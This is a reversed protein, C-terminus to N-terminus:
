IGLIKREIAEMQQGQPCSSGDRVCIPRLGQLEIEDRAYTHGFSQHRAIGEEICEQCMHDSFVHREADLEFGCLAVIPGDSLFDRCCAMHDRDEEAPARDLAPDPQIVVTVDTVSSVSSDVAAHRNQLEGGITPM